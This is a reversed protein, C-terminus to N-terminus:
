YNATLMVWLKTTDTYTPSLDTSFFAGKLLLGYRDNIKYAASVDFETGFDSSGSEASFDHYVGMFNWKNWKYKVTLYLDDIGQAPTLLFKDAWGQFKHLTALPTRFAEGPNTEHGGLSEYGLGLSLGNKMTWMADIHIYAADYSVPNDAADSQTALEAVLAIKGEGAAISGALRAGFTATSFAAITEDDILYFYPVVSWEDNLTVKANLLHTDTNSKGAPVSDGFIRRVWAVYSYQLTTNAIANTNLTFADYTQENQRWGVGGVFRQNDLLIRQRGFRFKWDDDMKYDAYLQNLNSGKPDAVIPYVGAKGPSTGAGSNFDTLLVHFVHDFEGFASWGNWQGTKYNLRFRLTSANADEPLGDQDVFEYRYRLNISAKGSTIAGALDNGENEEAVVPLGIMTLAILAPLPFFRYRKM